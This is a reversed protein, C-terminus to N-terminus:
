IYFFFFIYLPVSSRPCTFQRQLNKSLYTALTNARERPEFGSMGLVCELGGYFPQKFIVITTNM